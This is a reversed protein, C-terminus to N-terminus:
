AKSREILSCFEFIIIKDIHTDDALYEHLLEQEGIYPGWKHYRFGNHEPQMIRFVKQMLVCYPIDTKIFPSEKFYELIQLHTDALGYGPWFRGSSEVGTHYYGIVYFDDLINCFNASSWYLGKKLYHKTAFDVLTWKNDIRYRVYYGKKTKTVWVDKWCEKRINNEGWKIININFDALM